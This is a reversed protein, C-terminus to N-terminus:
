TNKAQSIFKKKKSIYYAARINAVLSTKIPTGQDLITENHSQICKKYPDFLICKQNQNKNQGRHQILSHLLTRVDFTACAHLQCVIFACPLLAAHIVGVSTGYGALATAITVKSSQRVVERGDKRTDVPTALIKTQPPPAGPRRWGAECWDHVCKFSDCAASSRHASWCDASDHTSGWLSIFLFKKKLHFSMQPLTKTFTTLKLYM